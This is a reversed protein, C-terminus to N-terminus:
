AARALEFHRQLFDVIAAAAQLQFMGTFGHGQGPYIHVGHDAGVRKLLGELKHAEEVPVIPDRDGHLVLTPPMQTASEMFPSPMGGFLSIVASIRQDSSALALSLFGGLSIGLLAIRDADVGPQEAAYTVADALTQMWLLFNREIIQPVAYSTGSSEFYHVIFVCYGTKTFERAYQEFYRGGGGSGHVVIVAPVNAGPLKEPAFQHITIQKGGSVFSKMGLEIGYSIL